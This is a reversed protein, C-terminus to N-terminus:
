SEVLEHHSVEPLQTELSFFHSNAKLTIRSLM